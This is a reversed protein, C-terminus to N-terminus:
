RSRGHFAETIANLRESTPRYEHCAIFAEGVAALDEADLSLLEAQTAPKGDLLSHAAMALLATHGGNDSLNVESLLHFFERDNITRFTVVRRSVPLIVTTRQPKSTQFPFRM